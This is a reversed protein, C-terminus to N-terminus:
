RVPVRTFMVRLLPVHEPWFTVVARYRQDQNKRYWYSYVPSGGDREFIFSHMPRGHAVLVFPKDLRELAGSCGSHNVIVDADLAGEEKLVPVGRDEGDAPHFQTPAPDVIVADYGLKREAEVLERTTEYLGCRGPTAIALHAIKM